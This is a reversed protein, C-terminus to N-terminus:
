HRLKVGSDSYGVCIVRFLFQMCLISMHSVANSSYGGERLLICSLPATNIQLSAVRPLSPHALPQLYLYVRSSGEVELLPSYGEESVNVSQEQLSVDM